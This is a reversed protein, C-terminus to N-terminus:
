FIGLELSLIKLSLVSIQADLQSVVIPKGSIIYNPLKKLCSDGVVLAVDVPLELIGMGFSFYQIEGLLPM